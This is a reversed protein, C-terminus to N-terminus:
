KARDHGEPNSVVLPNPSPMRAGVEARWRALRAGMAASRDPEAGSRDATEGPDEVLHYLEGEIGDPGFREVWKWPGERLAGGPTGGQNGWHPYHWYLGRPPPAAGGTLTTLLEVGDMTV